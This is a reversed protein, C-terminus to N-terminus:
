TAAQWLTQDDGYKAILDPLRYDPTAPWSTRNRHPLYGPRYGEWHLHLNEFRHITTPIGAGAGILEYQPQWHENEVTAPDLIHDVFAQWDTVDPRSWHERGYDRLWYMFAFCSKLRDQPNRVFAIRRTVTLLAPDDNEVVRFSPGLWEKFSQIGAKPIQAVALDRSEDIFYPM